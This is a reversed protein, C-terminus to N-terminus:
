NDTRLADVPHLDLAKKAPAISALVAALIVILTIGLFYGPSLEPYVVDSWGMAEIGEAVSSFNLGTQGTIRVLLGGLGMGVLAGALTLYITELVIMGFIRGKNMGIAMLIGLEKTRELVAMMMTNVIGFALAFLIFGLVIYNFVVIYEAIMGADPVLEKWTLVAVKHFRERLRTKLWQPDSKDTLLVAIEHCAGMPLGTLPQLDQIPVFANMQDFLTNDTKYVGCVRFTQNVLNGQADSYTFVIKSRLRYHIAVQTITPGYANIEKPDLYKRLEKEFAKKTLFRVDAAPLLSAILTQPLGAEGLSDIAEGSLVYTKIRLQEATKDSIFIPSGEGNSPYNGAGPLLKTYLDSVKREQTLDVGNLTLGTTGNSTAAMTTVKIRKSYAVVEPDKKLFTEIAAADPVTKDIDENNLFDPHYLKLHSVETHIASYIRQNSWGMMMGCAFVGATVGLLVATM